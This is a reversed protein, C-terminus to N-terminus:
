RRGSRRGDWSRSAAKWSRNANWSRDANWSRRAKWSRNQPEWSTDPKGMWSGKHRGGAFSPKMLMMMAPPTYVAFKGAKKLFDRRSGDAGTEGTVADGHSQTVSDDRKKM